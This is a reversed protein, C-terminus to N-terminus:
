RYLTCEALNYHDHNDIERPAAFCDQLWLKRGLEIQEKLEEPMASVQLYATATSRTKHNELEVIIQGTSQAYSRNIATIEGAYTFHKIENCGSNLIAALGIGLLKQKLNM